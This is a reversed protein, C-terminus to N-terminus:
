LTSFKTLRGGSEVEKKESVAPKKSQIVSDWM